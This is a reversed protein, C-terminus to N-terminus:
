GRKLAKNRKASKINLDVDFGLTLASFGASEKIKDILRNDICEPLKIQDIEDSKYNHSTDSTLKGLIKSQYNKKKPRRLPDDVMLSGFIGDMGLNIMALNSKMDGLHHIYHLTRLEM